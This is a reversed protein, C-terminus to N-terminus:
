WVYAKVLQVVPRDNTALDLVVGIMTLKDRQLLNPGDYIAYFRGNYGDGDRYRPYHEIGCIELYYKGGGASEKDCVIGNFKILNGEYKDINRQMDKYDWNVVLKDIEPASMSKYKEYVQSDNYTSIQYSVGLVVMVLIVFIGTKIGLEKKSEKEM